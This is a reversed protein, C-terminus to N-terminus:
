SQWVDTKYPLSSTITSVNPFVTGSKVFDSGGTRWNEPLKPRAPFADDSNRGFVGSRILILLDHMCYCAQTLSHISVDCQEAVHPSKAVSRTIKFWPSTVLVVGSSAVGKM